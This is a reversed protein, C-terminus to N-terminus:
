VDLLMAVGKLYVNIAKSLFESIKWIPILSTEHGLGNELYQIQHKKETEIFTSTLSSTTFHFSIPSKPPYDYQLLSLERLLCAARKFM